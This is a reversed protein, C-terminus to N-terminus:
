KKVTGLSWVTSHSDQVVFIQTNSRWVNPFMTKLTSHVMVKEFIYAMNPRNPVKVSDTNTHKHKQTNTNAHWVVPFMTKSTRTGNGKQFYLMHQAYRYSQGFCYKHIQIQMDSLDFSQIRPGRVTVKEFINQISKFVKFFFITNAYKHIQM